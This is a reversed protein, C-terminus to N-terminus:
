LDDDSTEDRKSSEERMGSIRIIAETIKHLDGDAKDRDQWASVKAITMQPNVMAISVIKQEFQDRPMKRSGKFKLAQKRTLPKIRVWKGNALEIDEFDTEIDANLIEEDTAYEKVDNKKTM